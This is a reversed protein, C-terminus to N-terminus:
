WNAAQMVAAQPVVLPAPTAGAAAGAPALGITFVAYNNGGTTNGGNVTEGGITTGAAGVSGNSDWVQATIGASSTLNERLTAPPSGPATNTGGLSMGVHWDNAVGTVETHATISLVQNAAVSGAIDPQASSAGTYSVLAAAWWTTGAPSGTESLTLTAGPDGSTAVRYYVYGYSFLTGNNANEPNSGDHMPSLLTWSGGGGSFSITPATSVECFVPFGLLMVDGVLVGSPITGAASAATNASWTTGTNYSIAM